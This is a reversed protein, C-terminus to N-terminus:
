YLFANLRKWKLELCSDNLTTKYDRGLYLDIVLKMDRFVLKWCGGTSRNTHLAITAISISTKIPKHIITYPKKRVPM